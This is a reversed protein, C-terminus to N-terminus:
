FTKTTIKNPRWFSMSVKVAILMILFINGAKIHTSRKNQQLFSKCEDSQLYDVLKRNDENLGFQYPKQDLEANEGRLHRTTIFLDCM